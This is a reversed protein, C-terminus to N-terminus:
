KTKKKKKKPKKVESTDSDETEDLEAEDEENESNTVEDDDDLGELFKEVDEKSADDLIDEGLTDTIKYKKTERHRLVVLNKAAALPYFKTKDLWDPIVDEKDIEEDTATSGILDFKNDFKEHLPENSSFVQNKTVPVESGDAKKLFHIGDKVRFRFLAKSM